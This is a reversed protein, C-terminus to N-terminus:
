PTIEDWTAGGDSSLFVRDRAGAVVHGAANAAFRELPIPAAHVALVSLGESTHRLRALRGEPTLALWDGGDVPVFGHFREDPRAKPGTWDPEGPHLAWYESHGPRGRDVWIAGDAAIQPPGAAMDRLPAVQWGTLGADAIGIANRGWALLRRDPLLGIGNVPEDGPTQGLKFLPEWSSGSRRYIRYDSPRYDEQRYSARPATFASHGHDNAVALLDGNPAVGLTRVGTGPPGPLGDAADRWHGGQDRSRYLGRDWAGLYLAGSPAFTM